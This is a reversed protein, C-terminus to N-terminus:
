RVLYKRLEKNRETKSLLTKRNKGIKEYICYYNQDIEHINMIDNYCKEFMIINTNDENPLEGFCWIGKHIYGKNNPMEKLNRVIYPPLFDCINFFKQEQNDIHYKKNKTKNSNIDFGKQAFIKKEEQKEERDIRKINIKENMKIINKVSEVQNDKYKIDLEGKDISLIDENLKNLEIDHENNKKQLKEIQKLEFGSINSQSKFLKITEKNRELFINIERIRNNINNKEGIKFSEM